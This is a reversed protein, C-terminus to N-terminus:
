EFVCGAPRSEEAIWPACTEGAYNAIAEACSPEVLADPQATSLSLVFTLQKRAQTWVKRQVEPPDRMLHDLGSVGCALTAGSLDAKSFDPTAPGFRVLQEFDLRMGEFLAGAVDAAPHERDARDYPPAFIIQANAFNANRLNAGAFTVEGKTGSLDAGELDALAFRAYNLNSESFDAGRLDLGGFSHANSNSVGNRQTYEVPSWDTNSFDMNLEVGNCRHSLPIMQRASPDVGAPLKTTCDYRAGKLLTGDLGATSLDAGALNSLRLDAGELKAGSLDANRLDATQLEVGQLDADRLSAGAFTKSMYADRFNAGDLRAETFDFNHVHADSFDKGALNQGVLDITEPASWPLRLGSFDFRAYDFRVGLRLQVHRWLRRTDKDASGLAAAKDFRSLAEPLQEFSYLVRGLGGYGGPEDPHESIIKEYAQRAGVRDGNDELFRALRLGANMDGPTSALADRLEKWRTGYTDLAKAYDRDLEPSRATKPNKFNFPQWVCYDTWYTGDPQAVAFLVFETSGHEAWSLSVGCSSDHASFFRLAVENGPSGKFVESPIFSTTGVKFHPNFQPDAPFWNYTKLIYSIKTIRGRAILDTQRIHEDLTYCACSCAAAEHSQAWTLSLLLLVLLIRYKM